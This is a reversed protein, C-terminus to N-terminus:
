VETWNYRRPSWHIGSTSRAQISRARSSKRRQPSRPARKSRPLLPPIRHLLPCRSSRPLPLRRRRSPPRGMNPFLSGSPSPQPLPLPDLRPPLRRTINSTAQFQLVSVYSYAHTLSLISNILINYVKRCGM